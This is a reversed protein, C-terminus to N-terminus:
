GPSIFVLLHADSVSGEVQKWQWDKKIEGKVSVEFFLIISLMNSGEYLKVCKLDFSTNLKLLKKAEGAGSYFMQSKLREFQGSDAPMVLLIDANKSSVDAAPFM